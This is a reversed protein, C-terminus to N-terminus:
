WFRPASLSSGPPLSNRKKSRTTSLDFFRFENGGPLENDAGLNQYRLVGQAQDLYTSPLVLSKDPRQNQRVVVKFERRPDNSQIGAYNVTVEIRQHTLRHNVNSSRLVRGGVLSRNEHIMFQRTLILDEKKRDRYVVALYNGSKKFTPLKFRYHVYNIKSESSFEFDEIEFENFGQVYMGPRLDSPTWDANCHIFRVFYYDADEALDDFELVLNSRDGMNKVSPAFRDSIGNGEPILQITRIGPEYAKNEYALQKQQASLKQTLSILCLFPILFSLRIM